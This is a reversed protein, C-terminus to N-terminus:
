LDLYDQIMPEFLRFTLYAKNKGRNLSCHKQQVTASVPNCKLMEQLARSYYFYNRRMDLLIRINKGFHDPFWVFSGPYSYPM